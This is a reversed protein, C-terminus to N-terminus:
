STSAAIRPWDAASRRAARRSNDARNDVRELAPQLRLQRIAPVESLRDAIPERAPQSVRNKCSPRMSSSVLGTSRGIQGTARPLFFWGNAPLSPQPARHAITQLRTSVQMHPHRRRHLPNKPPMSTPDAANMHGARLRRGCGGARVIRRPAHRCQIPPGVDCANSRPGPDSRGCALHRAERPKHDAGTRMRRASRRLREAARPNATSPGRAYHASAWFRARRPPRRTAQPAAPTRGIPSPRATEGNRM